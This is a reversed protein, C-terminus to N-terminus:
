DPTSEAPDTDLLLWDRADGVNSFVRANVGRNYLVTEILRVIEGGDPNMEIWAIRYKTSINLERFLAGHDYAELIQLPTTTNAIGLVKFCQHKECLASVQTWLARSFDANKEGDSLVQVFDKEFTVVIRNKM